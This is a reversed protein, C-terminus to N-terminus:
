YMAGMRQLTREDDILVQISDVEAKRAVDDAASPVASKLRNGTGYMAIRNATPTTTAGHAVTTSAHNGLDVILEGINAVMAAYDSETFNRAVSIGAAWARASGQFGRTIGSLTNGAKSTYLITEALDGQGIVALNPAVPVASGNLVDFSTQGATIASALETVPSNVMGPYMTQM